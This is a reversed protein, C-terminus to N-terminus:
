CGAECLFHMQLRQVADLPILAPAAAAVPPCQCQGLRHILRPKMMVVQQVQVQEVGPEERAVVELQLLRRRRGKQLLVRQSQSLPAEVGAEVEPENPLRHHSPMQKMRQQLTIRQLLVPM